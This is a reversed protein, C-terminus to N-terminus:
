SQPRPGSCARGPTGALTLNIANVIWGHKGTDIVGFPIAKTCKNGDPDARSLEVVVMRRKDDGSVPDIRIIRFPSNRLFAQTVGLRQQYDSPQRLVGAPGKATGWFRGMRTINSDAVAEMFNRVASEPSTAVDLPAPNQPGGGCATLCLVIVPLLPRFM